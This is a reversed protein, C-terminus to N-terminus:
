KKGVCNRGQEPNSYYSDFDDSVHLTTNVQGDANTSSHMGLIIMKKEGKGGAKCFM